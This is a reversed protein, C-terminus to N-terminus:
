QPRSAIIHATTELATDIANLAGGCCHGVVVPPGEEFEVRLRCSAGTQGAMLFIRVNRIKAFRRLVERGQREAYIRVEAAVPAHAVVDVAWATPDRLVPADISIATM